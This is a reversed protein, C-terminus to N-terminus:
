VERNTPLTLHTYSVSICVYKTGRTVPLGEHYHTIRGPHILAYGKKNKICKNAKVFRVEGGEYESNLSINVTYASSDHHPGLKYFKDHEYKVVFAININNTKYSGWHHSVVPAIYTKIIDELSKFDSCLFNETLSIESNINKQFALRANTGGVDAVILSM